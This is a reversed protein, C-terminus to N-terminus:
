CDLFERVSLLGARRYFERRLLAEYLSLALQRKLKFKKVKM